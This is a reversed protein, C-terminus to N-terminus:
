LFNVLVSETIDIQFRIIGSEICFRIAMTIFDLLNTTM